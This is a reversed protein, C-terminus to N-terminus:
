SASPTWITELHVVPSFTDTYDMGPQQSYGKAVLRANYKQLHGDKDHKKTLVWKNSIPTCWEPLDILEWTGMKHLQDLEAKMAKEWNLWDPSEQVERLTRLNDPAVSPESSMAYVREASTMNAMESSTMSM